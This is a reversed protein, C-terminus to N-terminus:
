AVQKSPIAPLIEEIAAKLRAVRGPSDIKQGDYDRVYFVDVVQDVNTAIKAVWIDLDAKFLVDTIRFLLGPFDYAFVEVITFFSSSQHNIVVRSARGHIGRKSIPYM